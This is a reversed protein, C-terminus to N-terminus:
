SQDGKMKQGPASPGRPVFQRGGYPLLWIDKARVNLQVGAVDRHHHGTWGPRCGFLIRPYASDWETSWKEDLVIFEVPRGALIQPREPPLWLSSAKVFAPVPLLAMCGKLFSRRDM